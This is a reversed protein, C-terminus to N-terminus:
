FLGDEGRGPQPSVPVLTWTFGRRLWSFGSPPPGLDLPHHAPIPPASRLPPAPPVAKPVPSPAPPAPTARTVQPRAALQQVTMPRPLPPRGRREIRGDRRLHKPGHQLLLNVLVTRRIHQASDTAHVMQWLQHILLEKDIASAIGTPVSCRGSMYRQMTRSNIGVLKAAQGRTMHLDRIQRKLSGGDLNSNSHHRHQM